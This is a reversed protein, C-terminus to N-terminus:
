PHNEVISDNKDSTLLLPIAASGGYNEIGVVDSAVLSGEKRIDKATNKVFCSVEGMVDEDELPFSM